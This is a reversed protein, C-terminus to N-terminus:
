NRFWLAESEFGSKVSSGVQIHAQHENFGIGLTLRGGEPKTGFNSSTHTPSSAVRTDDKDDSQPEFTVLDMGFYGGHQ